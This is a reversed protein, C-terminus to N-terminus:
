NVLCLLLNVKGQISTATVFIFVCNSICRTVSRCMQYKMRGKGKLATYESISFTDNFLSSAVVV